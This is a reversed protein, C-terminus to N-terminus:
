PIVGGIYQAKPAPVKIETSPPGLSWWGVPAGHLRIIQDAKDASLATSPNPVAPPQAVCTPTPQGGAQPWTVIM